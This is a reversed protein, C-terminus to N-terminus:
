YPEIWINDRLSTELSPCIAGDKLKGWFKADGVSTYMDYLMIMIELKDIGNHTNGTPDYDAKLFSYKNRTWLKVNTKMDFYEGTIM